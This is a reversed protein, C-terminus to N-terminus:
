RAHKQREMLFLLYDTSPAELGRDRLFHTIQGRHYTGHNVFHQLLESFNFSRPDGELSTYSLDNALRDQPLEDLFERQAAKQKRWEDAFDRGAHTAPMSPLAKLSNGQWRQLWLIEVGIIHALLARATKFSGGWDRDLQESTVTALAGFARDGAWHHYEFLKLVHERDIRTM